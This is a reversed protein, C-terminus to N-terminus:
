LRTGTGLRRPHVGEQRPIRREPPGAQGGPPLESGDVQSRRRAPDARRPRRAPGPAAPHRKPHLLTIRAVTDGGVAICRTASPCAVATLTIPIYSRRRARPLHAGADISQAVAGVGVAPFGFWMTGSWPASNPRRAPWETSTTSPCPAPRRRGPTAGTRRQAPARGQGPRRRQGHHRDHRRRPLRLRLSVRHEAARRAGVAGVGAGVDAWRRRERRRRGARPQQEDPRLRRRHVIGGAVCTLDNGPLFASPLNGEQQWSQGFDASHASWTSTGDSVIATCDTPSACTVSSVVLANQPSTSPPGPRAARREDHHRRRERAAIGRQIRGGHVRDGHPVVGREAAPHERGRGDQAKWTAGGNTTAAIVTAGTPRPPIPGPSAWPGAAGLRPAPCRESSARAARPRSAWRWRPARPRGSSARRRPRVRTDPCRVARRPSPWPLLFSPCAAVADGSVGTDLCPAHFCPVSSLLPPPRMERHM